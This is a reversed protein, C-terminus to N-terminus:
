EDEITEDYEYEYETEEKCQFCDKTEIFWLSNKLLLADHPLLSANRPAAM